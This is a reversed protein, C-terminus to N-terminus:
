VSRRGLGLLRAGAVDVWGRGVGRSDFDIISHPRLAADARASLARAQECDIGRAMGPLARIRPNRLPRRRAQVVVVAPLPVLGIRAPEHLVGAERINGDEVALLILVIPIVLAGVLTLVVVDGGLSFAIVV